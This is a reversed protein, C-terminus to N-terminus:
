GVYFCCIEFYAINHGEKAVILYNGSIAQKGLFDLAVLELPTLQEDDPVKGAGTKGYRQILKLNQLTNIM